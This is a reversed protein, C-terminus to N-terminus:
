RNKIISHYITEKFIVVLICRHPLSSTFGIQLSSFTYSADKNTLQSLKQWGEKERGKKKKEKVRDYIKISSLRRYTVMVNIFRRSISLTLVRISLFITTREAILLNSIRRTLEHVYMCELIRPFPRSETQEWTGPIFTVRQIKKRKKKRGVMKSSRCPSFIQRM